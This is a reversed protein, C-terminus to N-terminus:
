LPPSLGRPVRRIPAVIVPPVRCYQSVLNEIASPRGGLITCPCKPPNVSRTKTFQIGNVEANSLNMGTRRGCWYAQFFNSRRWSMAAERDWIPKSLVRCDGRNDPTKAAGMGVYRRALSDFRSLMQCSGHGSGRRGPRRRGSCSVLSARSSSVCSLCALWSHYRSASLKRGKRRGPIIGPRPCNGDGSRSACSISRLRTKGLCAVTV